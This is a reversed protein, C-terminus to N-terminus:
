GAEEAREVSGQRDPSQCGRFPEVPKEEQKNNLGKQRQQKRKLRNSCQAPQRLQKTKQEKSQQLALTPRSPTLCPPVSLCARAVALLHFYPPPIPTSCFGAGAKHPVTHCLGAEGRERPKKKGWFGMRWEEKQERGQM